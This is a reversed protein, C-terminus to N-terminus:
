SSLQNINEDRTLRSWQVFIQKGRVTSDCKNMFISVNLGISAIRTKIGWHVDVQYQLVVQCNAVM